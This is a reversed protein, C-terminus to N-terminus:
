LPFLKREYHFEGPGNSNRATHVEGRRLLEQQKNNFSASKFLPYKKFTESAGLSSRIKRREEKRGM